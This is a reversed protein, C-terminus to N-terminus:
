ARLALELTLVAFLAALYLLSVTFVERDAQDADRRMARVIRECFLGGGLLATALYAVGLSALLWPVLTVPILVLAWVLQRRRTAAAGIAAPLMPFGARAYEEGRYLAIAYFHPPQWVFVIAFLALSWSTVEGTAAAGAILPAIAGTVGGVVVALPTRPKLWVTYVLLYHLLAVFGIAVPLWGGAAGILAFGLAGIAAGFAFAAAPAVRGTPLARDSTREMLADRDREYWANLASAAGALLATGVVIAAARSAGPWAGDLLMAPPATLLVLPLVRPRTLSALVRAREWLTPKPTRAIAAEAVTM